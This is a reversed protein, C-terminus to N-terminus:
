DIAIWDNATIDGYNLIWDHIKGDQKSGGFIKLLGSPQDIFGYDRFNVEEWEKRKIRKGEVVLKLAQYFDLTKEQPVKKPLPSTKPNKMRM